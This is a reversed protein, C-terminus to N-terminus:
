PRSRAPGAAPSAKYRNCGTGPAASGAAPAPRHCGQFRSGKTGRSGQRFPTITTIFSITITSPLNRSHIASKMGESISQFSGGHGLVLVNRGQHAPILVDGQRTDPRPFIRLTEGSPSVQVAYVYADRSVRVRLAITDGAYLTEGPRVPRREEGKASLLDIQLSVEVAAVASSSPAGAGGDAALVSRTIMLALVGAWVKRLM